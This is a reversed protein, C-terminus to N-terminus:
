RPKEIPPNASVLELGPDNRQGALRSPGAVPDAELRTDPPLLYMTQTHGARAVAEGDVIAPRYRIMKPFQRRAYAQDKSSSGYETVKVKRVRGNARLEFRFAVYQDDGGVDYPAMEGYRVLQPEALSDLWRRGAPGADNAVRWAAEYQEVAPREYYRQMLWDGFDLHARVRQDVSFRDPYAAMLDVVRQHMGRAHKGRYGGRYAHAMGRLLPFSEPLDPGDGQLESLAEHFHRVSEDYAGISRLWTGFRASAEISRPSTEGYNIRHLKYALRRVEEAQWLDGLAQLSDAKAYAIRIQTENNTGWLRHTIHQARSFAYLAEDHRGTSQLASGLFTLATILKESYLPLREKLIIEAAVLHGLAEFPRDLLLKTVGLEALAMGFEVSDEGLRKATVATLALALEHAKGVDGDKRWGYYDQWLDNVSVAEPPKDLSGAAHTAAALGFVLLFILVSRTRLEIPGFSHEKM